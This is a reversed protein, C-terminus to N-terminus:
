KLKDMLIKIEDLAEAKKSVQCDASHKDPICSKGDCWTLVAQEVLRKAIKLVRRTEENQAEFHSSFTDFLWTEILSNGTALVPDCRLSDGLVLRLDKAYARCATKLAADDPPQTPQSNM